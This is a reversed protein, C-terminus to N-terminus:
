VAEPQLRKGSISEESGNLIRAIVVSDPYEFTGYFIDNNSADVVYYFLHFPVGAESFVEVATFRDDLNREKYLLSDSITVYQALADMANSM